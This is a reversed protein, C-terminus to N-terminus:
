CLSGLFFPFRSYKSDFSGECPLDAFFGDLSQIAHSCLSLIAHSCPFRSIQKKPLSISFDTRPNKEREKFRM